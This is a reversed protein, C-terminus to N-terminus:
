SSRSWRYCGWFALFVRPSRVWIMVWDAWNKVIFPGIIGDASGCISMIPMTKLRLPVAKKQNICFILCFFCRLLHNKAPILMIPHQKTGFFTHKEKGALPVAKPSNSQTPLLPRCSTHLATEYIYLSHRSNTVNWSTSSNPPCFHLFSGGNDFIPSPSISLWHNLLALIVITGLGDWSLLLIYALRDWLTVSVKALKYRKQM